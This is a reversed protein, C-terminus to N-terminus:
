DSSFKYIGDKVQRSLNINYRSQLNLKDPIMSNASHNVAYGFINGVGGGTIYVAFDDVKFYERVGVDKLSKELLNFQANNIKFEKLLSDLVVSKTSLIGNEMERIQIHNLRYKNLHKIGDMKWIVNDLSILEDLQINQCSNLSIITLILFLISKLLEM